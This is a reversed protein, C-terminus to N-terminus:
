PKFTLVHHPLVTAVSHSLQPETCVKYFQITPYNEALKEYIPAVVKCPACIPSYYDLIVIKDLKTKPETAIICSFEELSSIEKVLETM